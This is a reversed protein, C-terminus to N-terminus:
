HSRWCRAIAAVHGSPSAHAALRLQFWPVCKRHSGLAAGVKWGSVVGRWRTCRLVNWKWTEVTTCLALLSVDATCHYAITRRSAANELRQNEVTEEGIGDPAVAELDLVRRM